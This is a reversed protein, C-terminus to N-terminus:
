KKNRKQKLKEKRAKNEKEKLDKLMQKEIHKTFEPKIGKLKMSVFEAIIKILIVAPVSLIMGWVGFMGGGVIISLLIVLEHIGSSVSFLKAGVINQEVWQLFWCLFAVWVFTMPSKIFAFILAPLTAVVPGIYPVIDLLMTIFGIIWAFPIGFLWLMLGTAFGIFVAMLLRSKVFENMSFNIEKYLYITDHKISKPIRNYCWQLIKDKSVLLHYTILPILVLTVLSGVSGQITNILSGTWAPINNSLNILYNNIQLKMNDLVKYDINWDKLLGKIYDYTYNISSPLNSLFLSSQNILEPVIAILLVSIALIILLYSILTGTGRKLGKEEFKNVVPNLLFAILVSVFLAFATSGLISYTNFLNVVVVVGMIALIIKAVNNWNIKIKHKDDIARNGIYIMYYIALGAIGSILFYLVYQFFPSITSNASFM